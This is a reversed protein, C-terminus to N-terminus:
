WFRKSVNETSFNHLDWCLHILLVTIELLTEKKVLTIISWLRSPHMSICTLLVDTNVIEITVKYVLFYKLM